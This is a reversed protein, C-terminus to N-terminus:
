WVWCFSREEDNDVLEIGNGEKRDEAEEEMDGRSCGPPIYELELELPLLRSGFDTLVPILVLLLLILVGDELLAVLLVLLVLLLELLLKSLGDLRCSM